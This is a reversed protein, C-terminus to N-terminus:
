MNVGIRGGMTMIMLVLDCIVIWLKDGLIFCIQKFARAYVCIHM